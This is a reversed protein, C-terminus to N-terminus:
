GTHDASGPQDDTLLGEAFEHLRTLAVHPTKEHRALATKIATYTDAELGCRRCDELHEAVRRATVEDAVGDLYAQLVRTVHLCELMGLRIM